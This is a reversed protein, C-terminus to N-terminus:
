CSVSLGCRIPVGTMLRVDTYAQDFLAPNEPGFVTEEMVLVRRTMVFIRTFRCASETRVPSVPSNELFNAPVDNPDCLRTAAVSVREGVSGVTVSM